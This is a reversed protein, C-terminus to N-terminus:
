AFPLAEEIVLEIMRGGLLGGAENIEKAARIAGEQPLITANDIRCQVGLYIPDQSAAPTGAPTEAATTDAGASPTTGAASTGSTAGSTSCATISFVMTLTIAMALIKKM